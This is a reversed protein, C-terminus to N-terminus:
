FGLMMCHGKTVLLYQTKFFLVGIRNPEDEHQHMPQLKSAIGVNQVGSDKLHHLIYYSLNIEGDHAM